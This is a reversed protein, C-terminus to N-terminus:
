SPWNGTRHRRSGSTSGSALGAAGIRELATAAQTLNGARFVYEQLTLTVATTVLVAIVKWDM